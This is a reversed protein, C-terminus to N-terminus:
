KKIAIKEYYVTNGTNIQLLYIGSVLGSADIVTHFNDDVINANYITRLYRGSESYLKITLQNGELKQLDLNFQGAAPNPYVRSIINNEPADPISTTIAGYGILEIEIVPEESDNTIVLTATHLGERVPGFRVNLNTSKGAGIQSPKSFMFSFAEADPGQLEFSSFNIDVNGKNEITIKEFVTKEVEVTDFLFNNISENVVIKRIENKLKFDFTLSTVVKNIGWFRAKNATTAAAGVHVNGYKQSLIPKWTRGLDATSFIEGNSFMVTLVTSNEPHYVSVAYMKNQTFNYVDKKWTKGGDTTYALKQPPVLDAGEHYVAIGSDPSMFGLLTVHGNAIVTSKEWTLGKDSSKMVAGKTTGFWAHDELFAVSGVWGTEANAVNPTFNVKAWNNGADTTKAIGWSSNKPDGLALGENENFFWVKNIFNTISSLNKTSWTSGSNTSKYITTTADQGGGVYITKGDSSFVNYLPPANQAVSTIKSGIKNNYLVGAGGTIAGAALFSSEDSCHADVWRIPYSDPIKSDVHFINTTPLNVDLKFLEYDLYNEGEYTILFRADGRYWPNNDLLQVQLAIDRTANTAMGPVTFVPNSVKVFNDIPTVTVKLNGIPALFNQIKVNVIKAKFDNLPEYSINDHVSGVGYSFNAPDGGIGKTVAKYANVRGYFLPKQDEVQTITKDSTSRIHHMIQAPTWDKNVSKVLAAIGAVIPSSMSTGSQAQYKNGPVTSIVNSGPAYVGVKMGYNSFNVWQDSNNTAGVTLVNNYAAPYQYVDDLNNGDNGSAVIIVSGLATAIDIIEQEAPSYGPGGWSCNIIDAGMKAAYAIGEYGRFVGRSNSQDTGHKLPMITCNFGIGAIGINNDGIAAALGAVHTGHNSGPRPNNDPNYQGMAAQSYSVNGVFDWGNVDDIFGNNDNDIGDGPIEKTNVWINANLDEHDIDVGSDVIAIIVDKSGKTIDWAKKAQLRNLYPQSNFQPDNPTHDYLQRIFVPVAYEVEPNKSLQECIDYPDVSSSYKVEYIQTATRQIKATTSKGAGSAVFEFPATISEIKFPNIDMMIAGSYFGKLDASILQPNKTKVYFTNKEYMEQPLRDIEYIKGNIVTGDPLIENEVYIKYALPYQRQHIESKNIASNANIASTLIASTLIFTFLLLYRM